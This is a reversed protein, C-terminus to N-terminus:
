GGGDGQDDFALIAYTQGAAAEFATAGPGCAIVEFSGPSGTAVAVGATYNSASVDVGIFGDATATLEYWVSADTAPAGCGTNLETDNADTTAEHTDVTLSDGLAIPERGAYIDNAPAAALVPAAVGLSLIMALISLIALRKVFAGGTTITIRAM